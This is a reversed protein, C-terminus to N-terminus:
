NKGTNNPTSNVKNFTMSTGDSDRMTLQDGSISVKQVHTKRGALEQDLNLTVNSGMGLSYTGTFTTFGAGYILRGGTTFELTLAGAPLNNGKITAAQSSWKTGEIKGKNDSACGFSMLVLALVVLRPNLYKRV